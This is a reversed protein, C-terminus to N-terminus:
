KDNKKFEKTWMYEIKSSSSDVIFWEENPYYKTLMRARDQTNLLKWWELADSTKNSVKNM